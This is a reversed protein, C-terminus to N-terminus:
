GNWLVMAKTEVTWRDPDSCAVVGVRSKRGHIESGGHTHDPDAAFATVLAGRLRETM